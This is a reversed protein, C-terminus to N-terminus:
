LPRVDDPHCRRGICGGLLRGLEMGDGDRGAGMDM